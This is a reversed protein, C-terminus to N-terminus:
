AAVIPVELLRASLMEAGMTDLFQCMQCTQLRLLITYVSTSKQQCRIRTLTSEEAHCVNGVDLEEGFGSIAELM